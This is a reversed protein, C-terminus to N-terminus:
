ATQVAGDAESVGVANEYCDGQQPTVGCIGLTVGPM